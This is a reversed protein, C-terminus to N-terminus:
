RFFHGAPVEFCEAERPPVLLESILDLNEAIKQLYKVNIKPLSEPNYCIVPKASRRLSADEPEKTVVHAKEPTRSMKSLQKDYSLKFEM